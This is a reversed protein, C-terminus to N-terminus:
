TFRLIWPVSREEIQKRNSHDNDQEEDQQPDDHCLPLALVAEEPQRFAECKASVGAIM